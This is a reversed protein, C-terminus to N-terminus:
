RTRAESAEQRLNAVGPVKRALLFTVGTRSPRPGFDRREVIM